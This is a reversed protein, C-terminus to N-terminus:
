GQWGDYHEPLSYLWLQQCQEDPDTSGANYNHAIEKIRNLWKNHLLLKKYLKVSKLYLFIILYFLCIVPLSAM